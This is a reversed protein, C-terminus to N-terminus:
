PETDSMSGNFEPGRKGYVVPSIERRFQNNQMFAIIGAKRRNIAALHMVLNCELIGKRNTDSLIRPM